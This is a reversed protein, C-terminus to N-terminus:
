RFLQLSPVGRVIVDALYLWELAGAALFPGFPVANRPPVWDDASALAAPDGPASAAPPGPPEVPEQPGPQGKGLAILVLGVVSGQVSALLVVPLLAGVGLWAGIGALLWVDGFGLAEKHLVKEGLVSIVAFAGFGVAAGIAAGQLTAPGLGAASALLGTGILPWTLAHPLLWTDLDIAALAVLLCVLVLEALAAAGLGHRAWELLAVGAVLAEVLPYRISIPAGCSRCRARLALWSVVPVNDYWAIPKRCRPCRSGPSVISEGAPVRAIVVNLFSGVVGGVLAVWAAILGAPVGPM